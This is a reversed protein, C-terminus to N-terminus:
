LGNTSLCPPPSVAMSKRLRLMESGIMLQIYSSTSVFGVQRTERKKLINRVCILAFIFAVIKWYSPLSM